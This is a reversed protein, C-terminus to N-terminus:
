IMGATSSKQVRARGSEGAFSAKELEALNRQAREASALGQYYQQEAEKRGYAATRGAYISSLKEAEPLVRAVNRAAAEQEAQTLGELGITEVGITERAVNTYPAAEAGTFTKAQLSTSLGQRLQQGGIEALRVKKQLEPLQNEPDLMYAMLDGKTLSFQELAQTVEKPANQIRDYVLSVRSGIEDPSIDQGIFRAYSEPNAFKNLGYSRFIKRYAAENALYEKDSLPALGLKARAANGSFRKVYAANFRNDYKLLNLADESSIEPYARRIEYMAGLLESADLGINTLQSIAAALGAQGVNSLDGGVGQAVFVEKRAQNELTTAEQLQAEAEAAASESAAQAAAQDAATQAELAALEETSPINAAATGLAQPVKTSLVKTQAAIKKKAQAKQKATLAM